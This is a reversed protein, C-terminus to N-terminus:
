ALGSRVVEVIREQDAAKLYPHMPLSLVERAARAARPCPSSASSVSEPWSSAFPPYFVSSAIGHELLLDRVADRRGEPLRITYQHYVHGETSAPTSVGPADALLRDYRQAVARRMGNWEAVHPLKVRLIAAQLEDMRSNHGLRLHRYRDDADAGHNRLARAERALAPDNTALLGADGYAGLNKSPYFSFAGLQGAAGAYRSSQGGASAGPADLGHIMAGFSQACDELVVLDHANAVEMIEAMPAPDGFLHVPLIAKTRPTVARAVRAPDLNFSGEAIDVLVPTAGALAITEVTAFFTFPTTIIEDGPRVGAARLGILLADTGSNLGVAHELGLYSAVEREFGAVEDGLIFRGSRLVRHVATTIEGWLEDIEEQLDLMPIRNHSPSTSELASELPVTWLGSSSGTGQKM